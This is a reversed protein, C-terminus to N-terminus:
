VSEGRLAAHLRVWGAVTKAGFEAILKETAEIGVLRREDEASDDFTPEPTVADLRARRAAIAIRAHERLPSPLFNSFHTSDSENM